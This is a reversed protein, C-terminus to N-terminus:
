NKLVEPNRVTFEVRRNRARGESSENGAMPRSEGYGVATIQDAHIGTFHQVLYARVSEARRQSLQQNYADEGSSDTHGGIEIELQPWASLVDGVRDLVPYSEPLLVASDLQFQINDLRLTGTDILTQEEEYIPCGRADVRVGRPTDPCEDRDDPVGDGDSDMVAVAPRCFPRGPRRCDVHWGYPNPVTGFSSTRLPRRIRADPREAGRDAPRRPDVQWPEPLAAATTQLGVLGVVLFLITRV